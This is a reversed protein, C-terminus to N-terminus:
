WHVHPGTCTPRLLRVRRLSEALWWRWIWKGVHWTWELCQPRKPGQGGQHVGKDNSGLTVEKSPEEQLRCWQPRRHPVVHSKSGQRIDWKGTVTPESETDEEEVRSSQPLSRDEGHAGCCHAQCLSDGWNSRLPTSPHQTGGFISKRREQLRWM